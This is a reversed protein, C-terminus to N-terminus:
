VDVTHDAFGLLIRRLVALPAVQNLGAVHGVLNDVLNFLTQAADSEELRNYFKFFTTHDIYGEGIPTQTAALWDLRRPFQYETERWNLTETGMFILLSVMTKISANYRGHTESYLPKFIDEDILPLIRESYVFCWDDEPLANRLYNAVEFISSQTTTEKFM